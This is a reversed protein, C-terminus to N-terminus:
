KINARKHRRRVYRWLLALGCVTIFAYFSMTRSVLDLDTAQQTNMLASYGDIMLYNTIGMAGPIPIFTAGLTVFGQMAWIDDCLRGPGGIAVFSLATVAIYLSRQVLNILFTQALM